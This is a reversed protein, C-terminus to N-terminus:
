PCPSDDDKWLPDPSLLALLKETHFHFAMEKGRLLGTGQFGARDGGGGSGSGRGLSPTVGPLFIPLFNSPFEAQECSPQPM